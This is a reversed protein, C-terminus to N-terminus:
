AAFWRLLLAGVVATPLVALLYWARGLSPSLARAAAFTIFPYALISIGLWGTLASLAYYGAGHFANHRACHLRRRVASRYWFVIGGVLFVYGVYSAPKGGCVECGSPRPPEQPAPAPLPAAAARREEVLRALKELPERRYFGLGLRDFTCISVTELRGTVPNRYDIRLFRRTLLLRKRELVSVSEIAALPISLEEFLWLRDPAVHLRGGFSGAIRGNENAFYYGFSLLREERRPKPRHLPNAPERVASIPQSAM